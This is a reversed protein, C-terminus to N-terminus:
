YVKKVKAPVGALLANEQECGKAVVAGAAVLTRRALTVGPLILSRAGLWCGDGVAVSLSMGTGAIHGGELGVEHTGTVISVQPGSDCEAGIKVKAPATAMIFAGAGVWVGDGIELEGNGGIRASSNVRVNDGVKAGCWRLMGAKLGFCRTEPLLRSILGYIWLKATNM